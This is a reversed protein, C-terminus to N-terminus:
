GSPREVGLMSALEDLVASERESVEVRGFRMFGGEKHARAVTDALDIIFRKYADVEESTAKQELIGVAERLRALGKERLEEPTRYGRPDLEPRSGVIEDLLENDRDRRRTEDYVRAMSIGERITGGREVSAVLMGAIPPGQLLTSWEEADFDAKRTM